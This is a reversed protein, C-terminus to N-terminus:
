PQLFAHLSYSLPHPPEGGATVELTLDTAGIARLVVTANPILPSTKGADDVFQLEDGVGFVDNGIIVHSAAAGPHFVVGALGRSTLASRVADDSVAVNGRRDDGLHLAAQIKFPNFFTSPVDLPKKYDETLQSFLPTSADNPQAGAPLVPLVLLLPLLRRANM